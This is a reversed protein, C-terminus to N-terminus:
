KEWPGPRGRISNWNALPKRLGYRQQTRPITRGVAFKGRPEAPKQRQDKHRLVTLIGRM